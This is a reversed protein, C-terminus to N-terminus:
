WVRGFKPLLIKGNEVDLKLNGCMLDTADESASVSRRTTFSQQSNRTKFKPLGASKRSEYVKFAKEIATTAGNLAISDIDKLFNVGNADTISDRLDSVKVIGSDKRGMSDRTVPPKVVPTFTKGKNEPFSYFFETQEEPTFKHIFKGNEDKEQNRPHSYFEKRAKEYETYQSLIDGLIKNYVLRYCGFCSALYEKQLQNPYMEFRYAKLFDSM